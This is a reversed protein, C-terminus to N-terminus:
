HKCSMKCIQLNLTLRSVNEVANVDNIVFITSIPFNMLSKTKLLAIKKIKLRPKKYTPEM